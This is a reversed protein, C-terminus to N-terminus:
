FYSNEIWDTVWIDKNGGCSCHRCLGIEFVFWSFSWLVFGNCQFSCIGIWQILCYVNTDVTWCETDKVKGKCWGIRNVIFSPKCLSLLYSIACRDIVVKNIFPIFCEIAKFWPPSSIFISSYYEKSINDKIIDEEIHLNIIEWLEIESIPLIIIVSNCHIWSIYTVWSTIPVEYSCSWIECQIIQDRLSLIDKVEINKWLNGICSIL